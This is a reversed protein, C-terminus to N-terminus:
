EKFLSEDKYLRTYGYILIFLSRLGGYILISLSRLGGYILKFYKSGDGKLKFYRRATGIGSLYKIILSGDNV